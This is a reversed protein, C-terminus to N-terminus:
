DKCVHGWKRPRQERHMRELVSIPVQTGLVNEWVGFQQDISMKQGILMATIAAHELMVLTHMWTTLGTAWFSTVGNKGGVLPVEGFLQQDIM